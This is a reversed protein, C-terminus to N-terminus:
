NKGLREWEETWDKMISAMKKGGTTINKDQGNPVSSSQRYELVRDDLPRLNNHAQREFSSLAQATLGSSTSTHRYYRILGQRM